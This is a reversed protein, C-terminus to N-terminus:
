RARSSLQDVPAYDDTLIVAEPGIVRELQPGTALLLPTGATWGALREIAAPDDSALAIFNYEGGAPIPSLYASPALLAVHGFVRQMTALQASLFDLPPGDVVNMVYMGGAPRLAAKIEVLAEATTLQWPVTRGSFADGIVLDLDDGAFGGLLHRADGIRVRLNEDLELGLEAEALAVLQRDIELVTNVSEPRTADLYRPLAWGAGGIHLVRLPAPSRMYAESALAVQRAYPWALHKPDAIDVYSNALGDLNLIRGGEPHQSDVEIRACSYKTELTCSPTNVITLVTLAIMAAAGFTSVLPHCRLAVSLAVGAAVVTIGLGMILDSVGAAEILVFATLLSGALAGGTGLASYRGVVHGTQTIDALQLKVVLPTVTSLLAAPCFFSLTVLGLLSLPGSGSGFLDVLALTGTTLCGGAILAPGLLLRPDIRDAARGGTWSGAAIGALVVAIIASITELSAGVYPAVIRVALIEIILVAAAAAFVLVDALPRPLPSADM